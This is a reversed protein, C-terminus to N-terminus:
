NWWFHVTGEEFVKGDLIDQYYQKDSETKAYGKDLMRQAFEKKQEIVDKTLIQAEDAKMAKKLNALEDNGIQKSPKYYVAPSKERALKVKGGKDDLYNLLKPDFDNYLGIGFRAALIADDRDLWSDAIWMLKRKSYDSSYAEKADDTIERAGKYKADREKWDERSADNNSKKFVNSAKKSSPSTDDTTKGITNGIMQKAAKYAPHQKDYKLASSVKITHRKGDKTYSVKTDRDIGSSSEERLFRKEFTHQIERGEEVFSRKVPKVSDRINLYEKVEDAITEMEKASLRKFQLPTKIQRSQLIRKTEPLNGNTQIPRGRKNKVQVIIVHNGNRDMGAGAFYINSGAIEVGVSEALPKKKRPKSPVDTKIKKPTLFSKLKM